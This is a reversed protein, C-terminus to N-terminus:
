SAIGVVLSASYGNSTTGSISAMQLETGDSFVNDSAFSIASLNAASNGYGSTAYVENCTATPFAIQSTKVKNAAGTASALSPYVEFHMHPMRGAYCGPFITLFTVKGNSDTQQVGR